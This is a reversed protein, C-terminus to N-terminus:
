VNGQHAVIITNKVSTDKCDFVAKVINITENLNKIIPVCDLDDSLTGSPGRKDLNYVGIRDPMFRFTWVRHEGTYNTGFGLNTIDILESTPQTDYTIISRLEVCQILTIFNRNQNYELPTGQNPRVVKTNTVDILTKIEIIDM